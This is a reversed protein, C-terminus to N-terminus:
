KAPLVLEFVLPADSAAIAQLRGGWQEALQRSQYLGIGRGKGHESWFPEFLREPHVCPLGHIDHLRVLVYHGPLFNSDAWDPRSSDGLLQWEVNIEPLQKAQGSKIQQVYNVVLNDIIVQLSDAPVLVECDPGTLTAPLAHVDIANGLFTHLDLASVKQRSGLQVENNHALQNLIRNGREQLAPLNRRLMALLKQEQEPAPSAVQDAVLNTLQLMNKIDHQLFVSMRATQEFTRRVSGLKIWLDMQLLLFFKEALQASFYRGEWRRKPIFLELSLSIDGVEFKRSLSSDTATGHVGHIPTGFWILHWHLGSFGGAALSPWSSRLFDPLDFQLSENLAILESARQTQQRAQLLLWAVVALITSGVLILYPYLEAIM